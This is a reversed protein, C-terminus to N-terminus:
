PTFFKSMPCDLKRVLVPLMKAKFSYVGQEYKLYTSHSKFGLAEAMEYTSIKLEKRRERIYGLNFNM